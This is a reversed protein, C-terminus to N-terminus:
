WSRISGADAKVTDIKKVRMLQNHFNLLNLSKHAYDARDLFITLFKRLAKNLDIARKHWKRFTVM